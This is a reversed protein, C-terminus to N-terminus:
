WKIKEELNKNVRSFVGSGLFAPHNRYNRHASFPSPHSSSVIVHTKNEQIFCSFELAEKGMLLWVVKEKKQVIYQILKETFPYWFSLHSGAESKNVTLSTNLMLCGQKLWHDLVGDKRILKVGERELETYINRLSPNVVSGRPVSFCLGVANGNHYPDQGLVVVRVKELSLSFTRFVDPISPFILNEKAQEEIQSSIKLLLSQIDPDLFFDKWGSPLNGESLFQSLTHKKWDWKEDLFTIDSPLSSEMSLKTLSM